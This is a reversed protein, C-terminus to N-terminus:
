QDSNLAKSIWESAAAQTESDTKPLLSFPTVSVFGDELAKVDLDEDTHEQEKALFELRFFKKVRTDTKGAVGVSEIEVISKKQTTFRRAAGAASADRGLQALQAGLSQQNSMFNGAGPHRNASVAQWSPYQRWMSQKTVKFGKNSSPSTPIEINLSCDKPFVGKAIDRITANILPLCVGVADKFHSEQSENKKWNLSISLSPVGSILAERGGAVAGSYFMQHGCSSGQNIGSIVLIPKSWAFLAGSLGLSICDVPTGSVEFATAGKLKVSSVAITEGPTTSHASASKDTQPACVHVNYLGELVLAEVLSVLGPSDIGDGNTVLVIPRSDDIEEEVSAVDVSDSTSPAEEASGDSGVKEENGVKRKSLVDQLNSVLAASLGNNKSTM